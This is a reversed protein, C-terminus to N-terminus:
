SVVVGLIDDEKLVIHDDDLIAGRAYVHQGAYKSWLVVDGPKVDLPRISGNALIRGEGVALVEGQVAKEKANEPIIIGGKSIDEATARKVLIQDHLPQIKRATHTTDPM